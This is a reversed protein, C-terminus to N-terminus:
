AVLIAALPLLVYICSRYLDVWFNGLEKSSRRAVGRVFAVLVAIGVAASVFQQVALGAMQTLYSM